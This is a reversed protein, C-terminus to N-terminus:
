NREAGMSLMALQKAGREGVEDNDMEAVEAADVGMEVLVVRAAFDFLNQAIRLGAPGACCQECLFTGKVVEQGDASSCEGCPGPTFELCLEVPEHKSM